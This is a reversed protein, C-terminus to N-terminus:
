TEELKTSLWRISIDQSQNGFGKGFICFGSKHVASNKIGIRLTLCSSSIMLLKMKLDAQLMDNTLIDCLRVDSAKKGNISTGDDSIIIHVTEGFQEGKWWSPTFRGKEAPNQNSHATYTGIEKEGLWFTIDSTGDTVSELPVADPFVLMRNNRIGKQPSIEMCIEIRLFGLDEYPINLPIKYEVYGHSCWLLQATIRDPTFFVSPDDWRTILSGSSALGCPPYIRFDFFNGPSILTEYYEKQEQKEEGNTNVIIKSFVKRCFKQHGVTGDAYYSSILGAAELTGLHMLTTTKSCGIADQIEHVNMEKQELLQLIRLRTENALAKLVDVRGADCISLERNDKTGASDMIMDKPFYVM